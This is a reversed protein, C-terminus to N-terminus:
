SMVGELACDEEGVGNFNGLTYMLNYALCKVLFPCFAKLDDVKAM